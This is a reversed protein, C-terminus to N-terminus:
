LGKVALFCIVKLGSHLFTQGYPFTQIHIKYSNKIKVNVNSMTLQGTESDKAYSIHM